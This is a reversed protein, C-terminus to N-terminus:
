DDHLAGRLGALGRSVLSRATATRCGLARGVEEHPLDEFYRLVLAARMRPSLSMLATRVAVAEATPPEDQATAVALSEHRSTRRFHRRCANVVSARLYSHPDDLRDLRGSCRVFVDHVLDEAIANSGTLLYAVRMLAPFHQRYTGEFSGAAVRPVEMLPLGAAPTSSDKGV